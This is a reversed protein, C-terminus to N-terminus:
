RGNADGPRTSPGKAPPMPPAPMPVVGPMPVLTQTTIDIPMVPTAVFPAPAIPITTPPNSKPNTSRRPDITRTNNADGSNSKPQDNSSM